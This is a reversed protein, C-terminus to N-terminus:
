VIPFSLPDVKQQQSASPLSSKSVSIRPTGFLKTTGESQEEPKKNEKNNQGLIL